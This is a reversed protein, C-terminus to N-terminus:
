VVVGFVEFMEGLVFRYLAFLSLLFSLKLTYRNFLDELRMFFVSRIACCGCIGWYGSLGSLVLVDEILVRGIVM